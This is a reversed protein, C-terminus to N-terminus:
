NRAPSSNRHTEASDATVHNIFEEIGEWRGTLRSLINPDYVGYTDKRLREVRHKAVQTFLATLGPSTGFVKRLESLAQADTM